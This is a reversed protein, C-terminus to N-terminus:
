LFQGDHQNYLNHSVALIDYLAPLCGVDWDPYCGASHPGIDSSLSQDCVPWCGQLCGGGIETSQLLLNAHDSPIRGSWLLYIWLYQLLRFRVFNAPRPVGGCQLQNERRQVPIYSRAWCVGSHIWHHFAVCHLWGPVQALVHVRPLSYCCFCDRVAAVALEINSSTRVNEVDSTMSAFDGTQMSSSLSDVVSAFADSLVASSPM